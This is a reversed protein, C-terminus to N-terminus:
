HDRADLQERYSEVLKQLREIEDAAEHAIQGVPIYQWESAVMTNPDLERLKDVIGRLRM